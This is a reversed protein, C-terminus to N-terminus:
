DFENEFRLLPSRRHRPPRAVARFCASSDPESCALDSGLPRVLRPAPTDASEFAKRTPRMRVRRKPHLM